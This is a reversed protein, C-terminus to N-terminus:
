LEAAVYRRLDNPLATTQRRFASELKVFIQYLHM